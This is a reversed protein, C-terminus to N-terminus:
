REQNEKKQNLRRLAEREREDRERAEEIKRRNATMRATINQRINKRM